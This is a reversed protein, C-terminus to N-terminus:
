LPPLKPCLLRLTQPGQLSPKNYTPTVKQYLSGIQQTLHRKRNDTGDGKSAAYLWTLSTVQDFELNVPETRARREM